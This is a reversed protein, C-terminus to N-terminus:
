CSLLSVCPPIDRRKSKQLTAVVAKPPDSTQSTKFEQFKSDNQYKCNWIQVKESLIIKVTFECLFYQNICQYIHIVKAQNKCRILFPYSFLTSARGRKIQGSMMNSAHKLTSPAICAIKPCVLHPLNKLWAIGWIITSKPHWKFVHQFIEGAHRNAVTFRSSRSCAKWYM